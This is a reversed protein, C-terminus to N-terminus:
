FFPKSWFEVNQDKDKLEFRNESLISEYKKRDEQTLIEPHYEVILKNIKELNSNRIIALEGGEIDMILTNFNLDLKEELDEISTGKVKIEIQGKRNSREILSSSMYEDYIFFSIEKKTSIVSQETLFKCKNLNRNNTIFDIMRPNPEVVVHNKSFNLKKNTLCSIVGICAGLELVVDNENIYKNVMYRESSEYNKFKKGVDRLPSKPFYFLLGDLLFPKNNGIFLGKFAFFSNIIFHYSWQLIKYIITKKM